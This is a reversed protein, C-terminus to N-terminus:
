SGWICYATFCFIFTDLMAAFIWAAAVGEWRGGAKHLVWFLIITMLLIM